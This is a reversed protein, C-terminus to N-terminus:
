RLTIVSFVAGTPDSLTSFRGVEAIDMPPSLVRAGLGEARTAAADCDDVQVYIGWHPPVDGWEKRIAMMGAISRGGLQFETYEPSDKTKWPLLATYFAGARDVNGTKLESWCIVGHGPPLIASGSHEGGRYLSFVAGASDRCAVMRGVGPVDMPDMLLEGGLAKVKAAGGDIDDKWIYIGWNPPVGEFMPGAMAYLGAIDKGGHKLLTYTGGADGPMPVDGAEWGFLRTYFMKAANADRTAIEYWCFMGDSYRTTPDM